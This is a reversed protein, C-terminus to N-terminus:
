RGKERPPAAPLQKRTSALPGFDADQERPPMVLLKRTSVLPM